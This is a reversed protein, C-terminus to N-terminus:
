IVENKNIFDLRLTMMGSIVLLDHLKFSDRYKGLIEAVRRLDDECKCGKIIKLIEALEYM